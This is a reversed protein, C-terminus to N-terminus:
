QADASRPISSFVSTTAALRAAVIALPDAEAQRMEISFWGSYGEGLLIEAIRGLQAPDAPAPALEPESIHVHSVRGGAARYAAATDAVEGNAYLAGLDYNLTIAPHQSRAVFRAAQAVTTLFNTGYTAPNPEIAIVTGAARARDGLRTFVAAAEALARDPSMEPPYARQRPSGFVINPIGLREALDIARRIAVEFATREPLSGFLQAGAVGFLLSQMSVVQIGFEDLQERFRAVAAPDPVFPDAAEPFALAPAIELGAFGHAAMLEYADRALGPPWAINSIALKM